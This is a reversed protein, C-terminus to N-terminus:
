PRALLYGQVQDCHLNVLAEMQAETEVGEAVVTMDLSHAMACIARIIAAAEPPNDDLASVFARDIKIQQARFRQLYSLSSYGT